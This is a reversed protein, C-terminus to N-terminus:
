SYTLMDLIKLEITLVFYSKVEQIKWSKYRLITCFTGWNAPNDLKQILIDAFANIKDQQIQQSETNKAFAVQVSWKQDDYLFSQQRENTPDEQGSLRNLIFTNEHENAGASKFNDTEKSPALQQAELIAALGSLLILKRQKQQCYYVNVIVAVFQQAQEQCDKQKGNM